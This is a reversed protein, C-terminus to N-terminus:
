ESFKESSSCDIIDGAFHHIELAAWKILKIIGRTINRKMAVVGWM